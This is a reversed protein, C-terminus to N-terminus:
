GGVLPTDDDPEEEPPQPPPPSTTFSVGTFPGGMLVPGHQTGGSIRNIVSGESSVRKAQERWTALAARFGPDREARRELADSLEQARQGSAPDQELEELEALGTGATADAGNTGDTGRFPRRVLASLGEWTQRGLEGGAGGALAALLGVLVPDV